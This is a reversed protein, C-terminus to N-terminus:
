PVSSKQHAAFSEELEGAADAHTKRLRNLSTKNLYDRSRNGSALLDVELLIRPGAPTSIVPYFPFGPKDEFDNRTSVTTWYSGRRSGTITAPRIMRQVGGLEYGLNRLLNQGSDASKLSATHALAASIDGTRIAELWSEVVKRAAAEDPATSAQLRDTEIAEVLLEDQWGEDWKREQDDVWDQLSKIMEDGPSPSWLWGMATKHFYLSRLDLKEPNRPDFFQSVSVASEGSEHFALPIPKRPHSTSRTQWWIRSAAACSERVQEPEGATHILPAWSSPADQRFTAFL